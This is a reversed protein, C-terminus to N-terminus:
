RVPLAAARVFNLVDKIDDPKLEAKPGMRDM